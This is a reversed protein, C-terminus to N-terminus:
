RPFWCSQRQRGQDDRGKKGAPEPIIWCTGTSSQSATDKEMNKGWALFLVPLQGWHYDGLVQPLLEHQLEAVSLLFLVSPPLLTSCRWYLSERSRMRPWHNSLTESCILLRRFSFCDSHCLSQRTFSAICSPKSTVSTCGDLCIRVTRIGRLKVELKGYELAPVAFISQLYRRFRFGSCHLSQPWYSVFM